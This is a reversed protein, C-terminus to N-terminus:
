LFILHKPTDIKWCVFCSEFSPTKKLKGNQIYQLRGKPIMVSVDSMKDDFADRFSLTNISHLPLVLIFPKNYKVLRKIIKYKCSFPPNTIVIDSLKLYQICKNDFFDVSKHGVIKYGKDKFYNFTHGEGFFPEFIIKNKDIYKMIIDWSSPNTYWEDNTKKMKKRTTHFNM